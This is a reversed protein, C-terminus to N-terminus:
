QSVEDRYNVDLGALLCEKVLFINGTKIGRIMERGLMM